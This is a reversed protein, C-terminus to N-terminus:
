STLLPISVLVDLTRVTSSAVADELSQGGRLLSASLLAGLTVLLLWFFALGLTEALRGLSVVVLLIYTSVIPHTASRTRSQFTSFVPGGSRRTLRGVGLIAALFGVELAAIDRNLQEAAPVYAEWALASANVHQLSYRRLDPVFERGLGETAQLVSLTNKATEYDAPFAPGFTAVMYAALALLLWSWWPPGIPRWLSMSADLKRLNGCEPCFGGDQRSTPPVLVEASRDMNTLM